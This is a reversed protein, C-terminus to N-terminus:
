DTPQVIEQYKVKPVISIQVKAEEAVDLTIRLSDNFIKSAIHNFAEDDQIPFVREWQGSEVKPPQSGNTNVLPLLDKILNTKIPLDIDKSSVYMSPRDNVELIIPEMKDNIMIDIGLLHFYRHYKDLMLSNEPLNNFHPSTIIQKEEENVFAMIQHYQAIMSLAVIRKIKEWLHPDNIANLTKSAPQIFKNSSDPNKSNISVNSLHMYNDGLNEKTPPHYKKSCIRTLGEKYLYVTFPSLTPIFVYFRFDFKYGNLLFPPTYTQVIGTFRNTLLHPDQILYIGKGCQGSKPKYIWTPTTENKGSQAILKSSSNYFQNLQNPLIYTNPFFTFVQPHMEKLANFARYTNNKHCILHMSPIRNIRQHPYMNLLYDTPMFGDWWIIQATEDEQTQICQSENLVRQIVKFRVKHIDVKVPQTLNM